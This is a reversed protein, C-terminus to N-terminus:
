LDSGEPNGTGASPLVRGDQHGGGNRHSHLKDVQLGQKDPDHARTYSNQPFDNPMLSASCVAIIRDWFRGGVKM